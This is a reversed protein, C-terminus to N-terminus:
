KPQRPALPCFQYAGALNTDFLRCETWRIALGYDALADHARTMDFAEAILYIDDHAKRAQDVRMRMARTMKTGDQPQVMWGDIRLIPIQRPLSPALYGLPGDGTMLIVTKDPNAIPPLAVQVYPDGLPERENFDSRATLLVAFFIVGAAVLQTRRAMPMLGLAAVILLPALMELLLIYRYIAFIKLWMLYSAAVFAFLPWVADPAVLPAKSRRGLFWLVTSVILLVYAIGVRIDQFGLDDAVHWDISFLIPFFLERWFHTPVFRLDRYPASLALTSKFYENFYPFLPNGTLRDMKLMWYAAFLVAGLAGGIGGAVLRTALHKLDGGLVILAVAFGLAFPAEPLKLGVAMGCLVGAGGAILATRALSGTRLTERKVIVIALASLVFVSMVNDYYTTGYLSVTLAGSTGLLALAGAALRKEELQLSERALIYLPIVNLGQVAGLVGLALWSRTHTALWYFPIDLLPNYYTAQHAVAVDFGLRGNLFAYPIYWHYNRFDWSTDKGLAVVFAAWGLVVAILFAWEGGSLALARAPSRVTESPAQM